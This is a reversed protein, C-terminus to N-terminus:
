ACSMVTIYHALDDGGHRRIDQSEITELAFGHNEALKRLYAASHAYRRSLRLTFDEDDGVEVSFGFLGPARLAGRVGRFVQSLDGVYIFVDTAVVLDFTKTQMRLFETLEDCVLSDYIQRQRARKLMNASLDVGTLTKALPRLRAGLLGTGCGLDLVDFKSSPLLPQLAALLLEPGRYKLTDVLHEDFDHAYRDFFEVVTHRPTTAPVSGAGLSALIFQIAEADGGQALAQRLAVIAEQSRGLEQLAEGRGARAQASDPKLVLARDYAPLAENYRKLHYCALARGLWAEMLDPRLALARDFAVLSEDYRALQGLVVGRGHCAEVLDPKIALAKDYAGLAEDFRKLRSCAEARGLWASAQDCRITLAEDYAELADGWRNLRYCASALGLWAEL